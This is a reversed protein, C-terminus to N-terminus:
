PVVYNISSGWNAFPARTGGCSPDVLFASDACNPYQIYETAFYIQGGSNPLFIAWTYDGWRPRFLPPGQNYYLYESFGDQPSQGLDVIHIVNGILGHSSTSLTGYATSPYFGGGDAHTPGGNGSLTFAMVAKGNGGDQAKTGGSAMSPFELDEHMATVYAQDTVWLGGSGTFSATGIVWYAFGLHTEYTPGSFKQSILTNVAGWIQNNAYSVQEFGDGNTAIGSEPCKSVDTGNLGFAVCNDGLPIPGTKQPGLGCFGGSSALCAAGEDRYAQVGTFLQGGFGISSCTACLYSVLNSLGTWYFAAIRNDGAGFFDLPALMFGSGQYNNDFQTPDPSQGPIVQYWCTVGGTGACTGDPTPIYGMNVVVANFFPSNSPFGLEMAKKSFAFEQAGNFFGGGFGGGRLPFEDYFFLFADRTNAMKAYDNLLYPYGPETSNYNANLFYVNYPGTPNNTVSVAIGEFCGEKTAVFCGGFPGGIAESSNSVIESIFWHGGNDYDYMCTPDGGSSWPGGLSAPITTLGMLNDLTIDSSARTLTNTNYVAMEGQNLVNMVYGNGVCLPGDPPEVSGITPYNGADDISNLSLAGHAGGASTSITDCGWGPCTVVPPVTFAPTAAAKSLGQRPNLYPMMNHPSSSSPKVLSPKAFSPTVKLPGSLLVKSAPGVYSPHANYIPKTSIPSLQATAQPAVFLPAFTLFMMLISLIGIRIKKNEM